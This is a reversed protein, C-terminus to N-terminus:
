LPCLTDTPLQTTPVHMANRQVYSHTYTLFVNVLNPRVLRTKRSRGEYENVATSFLKQYSICLFVQLASVMTIALLCPHFVKNPQLRAALVIEDHREM